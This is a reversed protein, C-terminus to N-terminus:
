LSFYYGNNVERNQLNNLVEKLDAQINMLSHVNLHMVNLDYPKPM